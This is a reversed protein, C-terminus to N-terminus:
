QQVHAAPARKRIAEVWATALALLANVAVDSRLVRNGLSIQIFGHEKLLDLEYPEDWGGEPGVALVVRVKKADVGTPVPVDGLSLPVPQGERPPHAMVRVCTARPFLADMEDELFPKLRRVISTRPLQTIGSQTLGEMLKARMIHPMRLLHSGFYEKPVKAANIIILREVGLQCIMPLMRELQLPRPAALLLDVRPRDEERCPTMIVDHAGLDLKLANNNVEQKRSGGTSNANKIKEKDSEHTDISNERSGVVEKHEAIHATEDNRIWTIPVNDNSSADVVGVRLHGGDLTKLITRIHQTRADNPALVAYCSGDANTRIEEPELMIRNLHRVILPRRGGGGRTNPLQSWTNLSVTGKWARARECCLCILNVALSTHRAAKQM